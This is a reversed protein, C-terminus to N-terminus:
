LWMKQDRAPDDQQWRRSLGNGARSLWPALEHRGLGAGLPALAGSGGSFDCEVSIWIEVQM